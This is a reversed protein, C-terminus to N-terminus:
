QDSTDNERLDLIRDWVQRGEGKREVRVTKVWDRQAKWGEEVELTKDWVRM